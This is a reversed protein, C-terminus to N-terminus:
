VFTDSWGRARTCRFKPGHGWLCSGRPGAGTHLAGFGFHSRLHHHHHHPPPIPTTTTTCVHHLHSIDMWLGDRAHVSNPHCFAKSDSERRGRWRPRLTWISPPRFLADSGGFVWGWRWLFSRTSSCFRMSWRILTSCSRFVRLKKKKQFRFGLVQRQVGFAMDVVKDQSPLPSTTPTRVRRTPPTACAKWSSRTTSSLTCSSRRPGSSPSPPPALQHNQCHTVRLHREM